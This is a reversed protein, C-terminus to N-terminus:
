RRSGFEIVYIARAPLGDGARATAVGFGMERFRSSLINGRDGPGGMWEAVIEGPASLEDGGYALNEGIAWRQRPKVYGTARIREALSRGDPSTHDFYQRRAMDRAHRGAAAMLRPNNRLPPLGQSRREDNLLCKTAVHVRASSVEAPLVAAGACAAQAPVAPGLVALALAILPTLLVKSPTLAPRALSNM